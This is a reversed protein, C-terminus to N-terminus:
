KVAFYGYIFELSDSFLVTTNCFMKMGTKPHSANQPPNLTPHSIHTFNLLLFFFFFVSVSALKLWAKISYWGLAMVFWVHTKWLATFLGLSCWAEDQRHEEAQPWDRKNRYSSRASSCVVTVYSFVASLVASDDPPFLSWLLSLRHHNPGPQESALAPLPRM